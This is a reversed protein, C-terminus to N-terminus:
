KPAAPALRDIRVSINASKASENGSTDTATAWLTAVAAVGTSVPIVFTNTISKGGSPTAAPNTKIKVAGLGVDYYVSTEKLDTLPSGDANTTPEDYSVNVESGTLNGTIAWVAAGGLLLIASLGWVFKKM